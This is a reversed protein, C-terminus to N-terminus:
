RTVGCREHSAAVMTLSAQAGCKMPQSGSQILKRKKEVSRGELIKILAIPM